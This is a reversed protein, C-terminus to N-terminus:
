RRGAIRRGLTWTMVSASTRRTTSSPLRATPTSNARPPSLDLPGVRQDLHDQGAARDARRMDQLQGPDAVGVMEAADADGTACARGPTPLFRCSWKRARTVASTVPMGVALSFDRPM